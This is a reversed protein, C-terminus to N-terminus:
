PTHDYTKMLFMITMLERYFQLMTATRSNEFMLYNEQDSMIATM